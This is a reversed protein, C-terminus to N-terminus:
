LLNHIFTYKHEHLVVSILWTALDDLVKMKDTQPNENKVVNNM